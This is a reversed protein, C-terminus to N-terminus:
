FWKKSLKDSCEIYKEYWKEKENKCDKLQDSLEANKKLLDNIGKEKQTLKDEQAVFTKMANKEAEESKGQLKALKSKAEDCDKVKMIKQYCEGHLKEIRQAQENIFEDIRKDKKTLAVEQDHIRAKLGNVREELQAVTIDKEAMDHKYKKLTETMNHHEDRGICIDSSTDSGTNNFLLYYLVIASGVLPPDIPPGLHAIGVWFNIGVWM